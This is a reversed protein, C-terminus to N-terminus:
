SDHERGAAEPPVSPIASCLNRLSNASHTSSRCCASRSWIPTAALSRLALDVEGQLRGGAGFPGITRVGAAHASNIANAHFRTRATPARLREPREWTYLMLYLAFRAQATLGLAVVAIVAYIVTM